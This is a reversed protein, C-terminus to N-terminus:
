PTSLRSAHASRVELIGARVELSVQHGAQSPTEDSRTGVFGFTLHLDRAHGDAQDRSGDARIVGGQMDPM